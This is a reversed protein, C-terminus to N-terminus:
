KGIRSGVSPKTGLQQKYRNILSTDVPQALCLVEYASLDTGHQLQAEWLTDGEQSYRSLVGVAKGSGSVVMSGSMGPHCGDRSDISVGKRIGFLPMPSYSKGLGYADKFAQGSTLGLYGLPLSIKKFENTSPYGTVYYEEEPSFADVVPQDTVEMAPFGDPVGGGTIHVMAMDGNEVNGNIVVSDVTGLRSMHSSDAGQWVDFTGNLDPKADYVQDYFGGGIHLSSVFCHAATMFWGNGVHSATCNPTSIGYYINNQENDSLSSIGDGKSDQSHTFRLQVTAENLQSLLDAESLVEVGPRQNDSSVIDSSSGLTVTTALLLGVLVKRSANVLQDSFRIRAEIPSDM